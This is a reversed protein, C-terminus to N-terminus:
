RVVLRMRKEYGKPLMWDAGDQVAAPMLDMVADTQNEAVVPTVLTTLIAKAKKELADRFYVFIRDDAVAVIKGPGWEPRNPHEVLMGVKYSPKTM